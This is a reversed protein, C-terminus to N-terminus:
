ANPKKPLNSILVWQGDIKVVGDFLNRNKSDDLNFQVHVCNRELLCKDVSIGSNKLWEQLELPTYGTANIDAALGQMHWSNKSGGVADNLLECRYINSPIITVDIKDRIEQLKDGTKMLCVLISQSDTENNIKLKKATTSAFFIDPKFNKRRLSEKNLMANSQKLNLM